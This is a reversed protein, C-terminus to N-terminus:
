ELIKIILQRKLLNVDIIPNEENVKNQVIDNYNRLLKIHEEINKNIDEIEKIM